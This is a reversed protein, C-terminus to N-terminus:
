ARFGRVTVSQDPGSFRAAAGEIDALTAASRTCPFGYKARVRDSAIGLAERSLRVFEPVPYRAGAAFYEQVILSPSYCSQTAGDPWEVDFRIEPM